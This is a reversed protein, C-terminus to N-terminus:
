IWSGMDLYIVAEERSFVGENIARQVDYPHQKAYKHVFASGKKNDVAEKFVKLRMSYQDTKLEEKKTPKEDEYKKASLWFAPQKAFQKDEVSNYYKNYMDALDEAKEIWEPELKIFNKEAIGKSVKNSVKNWFKHFFPNYSIKTTKTTTPTTTPTPPTEDLNAKPKVRPEISPKKPRGGLKGNEKSAEMRRTIFLYEQLQRENQYHNNILVFFDKLVIECSEKESDSICNAIRQYKLPESPIGSCRKNWNYCLLRIYIGIEENTLAQTGAIFDETFLYWAKLKERPKSNEDIFM